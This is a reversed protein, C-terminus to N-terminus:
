VNKKLSQPWPDITIKFTSRTKATNLVSYRPRVVPTSYPVKEIPLLKVDLNNLIFIAPAIEFWSCPGSNSFHSVGFLDDSPERVMWFIINQLVHALDMARTPAGVQDDVVQLVERKQALKLM